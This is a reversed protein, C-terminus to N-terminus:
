TKSQLFQLRRVFLTQLVSNAAFGVGGYLSGSAYGTDSGGISKVDEIAPFTGSYPAFVAHGYADSHRVAGFVYSLTATVAGFFSNAPAPDAGNAAALQVRFNAASIYRLSAAIQSAATICQTGSSAATNTARYHGVAFRHSADTPTFNILGLIAQKRAANYGPLASLPLSLHSGTQTATGNWTRGNSLLRFGSGNVNGQGPAGGISNAVNWTYGGLSITYDHQGVDVASTAYSTFDFDALVDWQTTSPPTAPVEHAIVQWESEAAVWWLVVREPSQTLALSSGGDIAGSLVVNAVTGTKQFAVVDGSRATAPLTLTKTGGASADVVVLDNSRVAYSASVSVQILGAEEVYVDFPRQWGGLRSISFDREDRTSTAYSAAFGSEQTYVPEGDYVVRIEAVGRDATGDIAERRSPLPSSDNFTFAM